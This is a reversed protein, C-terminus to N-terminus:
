PGKGERRLVQLEGPFGGMDFTHGFTSRFGISEAFARLREPQPAIWVLHGGPRLVTAAHDLFSELLQGVDRERRVRRGMPPNTLITTVGEPAFTCADGMSLEVSVGAAQANARAAVLAGEEVDSGVLRRVPGAKAREILELGSGVFPDWVVDSPTKPAVQVLAAAVTPHSAAPVAAVRYDFRRDELARPVLEVSLLNKGRERLVVDWVADKPDNVLLSGEKALRDAVAWMMSRQHGRGPLVLRFRVPGDTLAALVATVRPHSLAFVARDVPTKGAGVDIPGVALAIETVTRVALAARLPLAGLVAVQGVEKRPSTVQPPLGQAVLPEFGQRCRLILAVGDPVPADVRITSATARLASRSTMLSARTTIRSLEPDDSRLSTLARSAEDGGVKGLAEAVARLVPLSPSTQVMQVLARACVDRRDPTSGLRGLLRAAAKRVVDTPDTASRVACEIARDDPSDLRGFLPLIRARQEAPRADFGEVMTGAAAKQVRLLATKAKDSDPDDAAILDVLMPLDSVKPTYGPDSLYTRLQDATTKM